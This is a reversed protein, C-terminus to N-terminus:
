FPVNGAHRDFLIDYIDCLAQGILFDVGNCGVTMCLQNLEDSTMMSKAMGVIEDRLDQELAACFFQLGDITTRGKSHHAIWKISNASWEMAGHRTTGLLHLYDRWAITEDEGAFSALTEM